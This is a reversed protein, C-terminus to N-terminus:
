VRWDFPLHDLHWDTDGFVIHGYGFYGFEYRWINAELAVECGRLEEKPADDVRPRDVGCRGPAALMAM